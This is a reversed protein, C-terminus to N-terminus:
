QFLGLVPDLSELVKHKIFPWQAYPWIFARVMGQGMPVKDFLDKVFDVKNIFDVMLNEMGRLSWAREFLSYSFKVLIYRNENIEIIPKFHAYRDPNDPDPVKLKSLNSDELVHNVPVGIDKDATRDWIVGWEDKVIGSKIERVSNVARNRVYKIHNGLYDDLNNYEFINKGLVNYEVKKIEKAVMIEKAM